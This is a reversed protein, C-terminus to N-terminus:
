GHHDVSLEHEAGNSPDHRVFEEHNLWLHWQVCSPIIAKRVVIIIFTSCPKKDGGTEHISDNIIGRMQHRMIEDHVYCVIVPRSRFFWVSHTPVMAVIVFHRWPYGVVLSWVADIIRNMACATYQSYRPKHMQLHIATTHSTSSTIWDAYWWWAHLAM